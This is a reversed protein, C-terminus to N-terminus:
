QENRESKIPLLVSFKSGKGPESKVDIRGGHKKVIGYSVSLGLGTGKMEPKTTFFPEFIHAINASSIGTGNDEIHMAINEGIVETTFTIVGGRDCADAANNVLNLLVQKLQDAVAMIPPINADFKKVITINRTHFDKKSFLLLADIAAHLNVQTRKDSTPQFFDRLDAILNKMRHCEQLALAVFEEEKKELSAYQGIGKIITMVSQLPNNFEHAISASLNGVAALKESHLLQQHSRQLELTRETVRQELEDHAKVLAEKTKQKETIDFLYHLYHEGDVPAWYADWYIGM